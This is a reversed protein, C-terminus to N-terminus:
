MSNTAKSYRVIHPYEVPLDVKCELKCKEDYVRITTRSKIESHLNCETLNYLDKYHVETDWNGETETWGLEDDTFTLAMLPGLVRAKIGTFTAVAVIQGKSKNTIFWLLDGERAKSKFMKGAPSTSSNIGWM